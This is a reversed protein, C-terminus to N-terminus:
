NEKIKDKGSGYILKGNVVQAPQTYPHEKATHLAMIHMVNWGEVKLADSVMSRHCRWWVAEACMYATPCQLALVKLQNLGAAFEETEMYDAYARFSKNHWVTNKSDKHFRQRGGLQNLYVYRIHEKPMTKELNEKNYQPFKNSGPLGRIDVLQEIHFAKLLQVFEALPHTSHGITWVQKQKERKM